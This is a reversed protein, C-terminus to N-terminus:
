EEFNKNTQEEARESSDDDVMSRFIKWAESPAKAGVIKEAIAKDREVAKTLANWM